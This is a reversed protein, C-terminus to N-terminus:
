NSDYNLAKLVDEFVAAVPQEGNIRHVKLGQQEFFEILPETRERYEKIRVKIVEPDDLGERKLLPSDDLPCKQLRATEETYLIPHRMLQCIRRHSNRWITQEPSLELLIIKVNEMGYEAKLLPVMERGEPLTRPSGSLIVGKGERALEKIKQSVIFFVFPPTCLIGSQWLEKEKVLSYKVGNVELYEDEAANMVRAEILKSTELLYWNFKESLLESQTGKGSGPMGLVIIVQQHSSQKSPKM